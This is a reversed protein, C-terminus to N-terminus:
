RNLTMLRDAEEVAAHWSIMEKKSKKLSVMCDPHKSLFDQKSCYKEITKVWSRQGYYNCFRVHLAFM